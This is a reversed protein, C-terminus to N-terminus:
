LMNGLFEKDKLSDCFADKVACWKDKLHTERLLAFPVPLCFAKRVVLGLLATDSSRVNSKQFLETKDSAPSRPTKELLKFCCFPCPSKLLEELAGSSSGRWHKPFRRFAVVTAM